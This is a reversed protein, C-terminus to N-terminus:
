GRAVVADGDFDVMVCRSPSPAMAHPPLGRRGAPVATAAARHRRRGRVGRLLAPRHGDRHRRGRHRRARRSERAVEALLESDVKSRRFHTMMVGAALKTIKGAMGVFVVREFGLGAARRSRSARHLRGGRRLVGTSCTPCLLRQAAVDSRSGTALVM